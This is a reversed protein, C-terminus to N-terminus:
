IPSRRPMPRPLSIAPSMCPRATPPSSWMAASTSAWPCQGPSQGQRGRGQVRRRQPRTGNVTLDGGVSANGHLFTGLSGAHDVTVLLNASASASKGLNANNATARATADGGIKVANGTIDLNDVALVYGAKPAVGLATVEANGGVIVQDGALDATAHVLDSGVINALGSAHVDLEGINIDGGTLDALANAKAFSVSHIDGSAAVM